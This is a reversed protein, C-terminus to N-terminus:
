WSDIRKTKKQYEKEQENIRYYRHNKKEIKKYKNQFFISFLFDFHFM